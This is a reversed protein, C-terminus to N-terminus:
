EIGLKKDPPPGAPILAAAIQRGEARLVNYTRCAAGIEMVEATIAMAKLWDSLHKDLPMPQPTGIILYSVAFRELMELHNARLEALKKVDLALVEDGAIVLAGFYEGGSIRFGRATYQQVIKADAGILPTVDAM